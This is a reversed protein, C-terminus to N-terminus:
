KKEEWVARLDDSAQQRVGNDNLIEDTVGLVEQRNFAITESARDDFSITIYKEKSDRITEVLHRLNRIRVGNIEKVVKTLPNSYGVALRHPFMPAAVVVLEEGEFRPKDGRRTALPSSILSFAQYLRDGMRNLSNLFDSTVPSFVLPGFVFYSPYRGQLSEILMPHRNSVPLEITMPEGKRIIEL